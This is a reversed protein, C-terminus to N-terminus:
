ALLALAQQFHLLGQQRRSILDALEPGILFLLQSAAIRFRAPRAIKKLASRWAISRLAPLATAEDAL